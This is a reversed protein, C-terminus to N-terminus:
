SLKSEYYEACIKPIFTNFKDEFKDWSKKTSKTFSDLVQKNIKNKENLNYIKNVSCYIGRLEHFKMSNFRSIVEKCMFYVNWISHKHLIKLLKNYDLSTRINLKNKDLIDFIDSKLRSLYANQEAPNLLYTLANIKNFDSPKELNDIISKLSSFSDSYHESKYKILNEGIKRLYLDQIAHILEHLLLKINESDDLKINTTLISIKISKSDISTASSDYIFTQTNQDILSFEISNITLTNFLYQKTDLIIFNQKNINYKNVLENYIEKCIKYGDKFEGYSENIYEKLSKMKGM